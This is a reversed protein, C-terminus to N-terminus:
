RVRIIRYYRRPAEGPAVTRDIFSFQSTSSSVTEAFPTWPGAPDEAFEVLFGAGPTAMWELTFGEATFSSKSPVVIATLMKAGCAVDARLYFSNTESPDTNRVALFYRGSRELPYAGIDLVVSNSVTNAALVVDGPESGTPFTNQNFLLDIAGPQTLSMITNTVLGSDCPVDVVFYQLNNTFVRGIFPVANTLPTAPPNTRVYTLNLRWSMLDAGSAVAGLRSDWIELSWLGFARQGLLPALPEEPFYYKRGTDRMQIHDLWVGTTVGDFQLVTNTSRAVFTVTQVRWVDSAAAFTNTYVSELRIRGVATVPGNTFAPVPILHMGFVVDSTPTSNQHVEVAIVNRGRRFLNGPINIVVPNGEGAPNAAVALTGFGIPGGPMNYRFAEVGNVYVVMGDDIYNSSIFTFLGPQSEFRFDTRFYHTIPGTSLVTNTLPVIAPHNEFAFVGRGSKWASDDYNVGRWATGLDVNSDDYRWAHNTMGIGAITPDARTAFQLVYEKGIETSLTRSVSGTRLLLFNTGSYAVASNSVIVNNTLVRWGVFTTNSLKVGGTTNEFGSVFLNTGTFNTEGFPPPAFKIPWIAKGPDDTFTAYLTSNTALEVEDIRITDFMVGMSGQTTGDIELRNTPGAARFVISTMRWALNAWSNAMDAVLNAMNTGALRVTATPVVGNVSDPNRTYAFSLLYTQGSTLVVNTSIMGSTARGNIDVFNTGSHAYRGLLPYPGLVEIQGREVKWGSFVEGTNIAREGLTFEFGDDFVRAGFNTVVVNSVNGGYGNTTDRGRNEALLVRTGQPSRLHLALDSVRPHNIRVDVEVSSVIGPRNVFITSNTTADDILPTIDTSAITDTRNPSLARQVEVTLRLRVPGPGANYVGVFYRGQSLPPSDNFGLDLCDGPPFIGTLGKDFVTQNPFDGRRLYLELPGAGNLFGVCAQVNTADAPVDFAAYLWRGAGITRTLDVAFDANTSAPEIVLTLGLVSGTHFLANDSVTFMWPGMAKQGMFSRLSGPGDSPVVPPISSADGLDGQDSDDYVVTEIGNWTRHNNFTVAGDSQDTPDRHSLTGILDGAEEHFISNTAYVRQVTVDPATVFVLINTGGPQDPSGDPIDVPVGIASAIINGDEDTESFPRDSSAAFIGFSAGQQDESKVGIAFVEGPQANSFVVFETGGRLTSKVSGSVTAANLDFLSLGGSGRAVYLDIDAERLRPLSLEPPFFTMILVNTFNARTVNTYTFFSWQNTAGNTSIILPSNAGVRQNLLTATTGNTTAPVLAAVRASPDNTFLPGTVALNANNSPAVNGSAIVLAYDQAINNSHSNLANVNVRHGQVVITYSSQLPPRLYVNEVNNVTDRMLDLDAALNTSVSTNTDTSSIVLADTFDSGPPFNNGVWVNSTLGTGAANTGGGYVSLNLDNVLKVSSIPNGPPDTWVLTMRLPYSRAEDPVQVQYVHHGGTSLGNTINQDFFRMPGNTTASLGSPISNSINAIGWGQHNLSTHTDLNYTLNLSRAGNIVLAKLLAPSPRLNFQSQLYEQFLALMGSIMPAAMSTGSEYRYYPGVDNNLKKLEDYYNGVDNTVTLQVVLDCIVTNSHFPNGVIYYMTGQTLAPPTLTLVNTATTATPINDVEAGIVLSFNTPQSSSNPLTFITAEIAGRPIDLSYLNTTNFAIPVSNYRFVFTNTEGEPETYDGSRTSLVMSGPAVVDPKFRGFPGEVGIGVNGRSSFGAMENDSDTEGMWPQNTQCNVAGSVPDVTCARAVLNSIFRAQDTAGVTIVNKATAPSLISGAIGNLGDGSGGGDNGAAFVYAVEQEGTVGPLSDRVAADYSAAFIDYDNVEYGWSNNSILANTLAANKQLESDPGILDQVFARALPAMGAFNAGNTSGRALSNTGDGGVTGSQAGNGLLSGVVHTGHGDFDTTLGFVRGNLDPHNGDVGTDAVMVLVGNGTLYDTASPAAYHSAPPAMAPDRSVRLKVRSLDNVPKKEAHVGVLQVSQVQAISALADSPAKVVLVEGLPTPETRLVEGGLDELAQRVAEGEGPFSVVNLRGYPSPEQRVALPLLMSDFKYYPEFPLVAQVEPAQGMRAATGSSARVLFANNPVYSVVTVGLERLWQQFAATTAGRAQVIYSGPDASRLHQPLAPAGRGTDILASRLLVASGSRMFEKLPQTTNSVRYALANSRAQASSVNPANTVVRTFHARVRPDSPSVM